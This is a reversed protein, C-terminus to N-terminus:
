VFKGYTSKHNLILNQKWIRGWSSVGPVASWFYLKAKWTTSLKGGESGTWTFYQITRFDQNKTTLCIFNITKM